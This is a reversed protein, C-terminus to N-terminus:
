LPFEQLIIINFRKSDQVNLLLSLEAIRLKCLMILHEQRDPHYFNMKLVM